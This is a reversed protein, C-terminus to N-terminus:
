LPLHWRATSMGPQGSRLHCHLLVASFHLLRSCGESALPPPQWRRMRARPTRAMAAVPPASRASCRPLARRATGMQKNSCCFLQFSSALISPRITGLVAAVGGESDGDANSPSASVTDCPNLMCWNSDHQQQVVAARGAGGRHGSADAVRLAACHQPWALAACCLVACRLAAAGSAADDLGAEDLDETDTGFYLTHPFLTHPLRHMLFDLVTRSMCSAVCSPM